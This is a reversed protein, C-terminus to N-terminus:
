RTPVRTSRLLTLSIAQRPGHEAPASRRKTHSVSAAQDDSCRRCRTASRQISGGVLAKMSRARM